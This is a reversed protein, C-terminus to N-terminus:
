TFLLIFPMAFFALACVLCIFVSITEGIETIKDKKPEELHLPIREM